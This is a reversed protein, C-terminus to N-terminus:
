LTMMSAIVDENDASNNNNSSSPGIETELYSKKAYM